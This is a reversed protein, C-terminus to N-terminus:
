SLVKMYNIILVLATYLLLMSVWIKTRETINMEFFSITMVLYLIPYVPVQRRQNFEIISVLILYIISLFFMFNLKLDLNKLIKKSFIGYLLFGWGFFWAVGAILYTFHFMGKKSLFILSPPFPQIQGFGLLAIYNLGFPLKAMKAGMSSTSAQESNRESSDELITTFMKMLEDSNVIIVIAMVILVLYILTKIYNNKIYSNIFSFLYISLFGMMFIGTQERLYYSWFFACFLILLNLISLKELIIYISIIFMLAIHVDRLLISSLYPIFSFVGYIIAIYFSIKESFYLRSISYMMMPILASILVVATKQALISNQEFYNALLAIYGNFYLAGSTDAYGDVKTIDFFNYGIQLKYCVDKSGEYFFGEDSEMFPFPTNYVEILGFHIIFTYFLYILFFLLFLSVSNRINERRNILVTFLSGFIIFILSLTFISINNDIYSGIIAIFMISLIFSFIYKNDIPFKEAIM